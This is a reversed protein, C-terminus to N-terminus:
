WGRNIGAAGVAGGATITAAVIPVTPTCAGGAVAELEAESLESEKQAEMVQEVQSGLEEPTFEYGHKAALSAVAQTKNESEVAQSVEAQLNKDENVKTLFQNVAEITM